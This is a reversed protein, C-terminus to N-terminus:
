GGQGAMYSFGGDPNQCKRVYALARDITKQNVDVGAARTALLANLQCATVSIDADLPEPRYRWGGESNIATETLSVAKGLADRVRTEPHKMQCEALFLMAYGHEYMPGQDMSTLLGSADQSALVHLEIAWLQEAYPGNATTSGSALFALGALSP